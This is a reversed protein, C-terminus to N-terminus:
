WTSATAVWLRPVTEALYRSTTTSCAPFFLTWFSGALATAAVVLLGIRLGGQHVLRQHNDTNM